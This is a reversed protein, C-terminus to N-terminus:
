TIFRVFFCPKKVTNNHVQIRLKAIFPEKRGRRKTAALGPNQYAM